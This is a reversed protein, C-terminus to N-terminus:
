SLDRIEAWNSIRQECNVDTESAQRMINSAALLALNLTNSSERIKLFSVGQLHLPSFVGGVPPPALRFLSPIIKQTGAM